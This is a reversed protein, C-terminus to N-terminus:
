SPTSRRRRPLSPCCRRRSRCCGCHLTALCPAHQVLRRTNPAGVRRARSLVTPSLHASATPSTPPHIRSQHPLGFPLLGPLRGGKYVKGTAGGGARSACQRVWREVTRPAPTSGQRKKVAADTHATPDWRPSGGAARRVSPRLDCGTPLSRPEGWPLDVCAGGQLLQGDRHRLTVIAHRPTFVREGAEMPPRPPLNGAARGRGRCAGEGGGGLPEMAAAVSRLQPSRANRRPMPRGRRGYTPAAARWTPRWLPAGGPIVNLPTARRRRARVRPALDDAAGAPLLPKWRGGRPITGAAAITPIKWQLWQRMASREDSPSSTARPAPHPAGRGASTLGFPYGGILDQPGGHLDIDTKLWLSQQGGAPDLRRMGAPQRLRTPAVHRAGPGRRTAGGSPSSLLVPRHKALPPSRPSAISFSVARAPHLARRRAGGLRRWGDVLVPVAMSPSARGTASLTVKDCTRRRNHLAPSRRSVGACPFAQSPLPPSRPAHRGRHHPAPSPTRFAQIEHPPVRRPTAHPTPASRHHRRPPAGRRTHSAHFCCVPTHPPHQTNHALPSASHTHPPSARTARVPFTGM